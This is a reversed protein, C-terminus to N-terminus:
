SAEVSRVSGDGDIEVKITTMITSIAVMTDKLLVLWGGDPLPVGQKLWKSRPTDVLLTTNREAIFDVALAVAEEATLAM